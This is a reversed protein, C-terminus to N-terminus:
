FIDYVEQGFKRRHYEDMIRGYMYGYVYCPGVLEYGTGKRRAVFPVKSGFFFLLRDGPVTKAPVMGKIKQDEVFFFRWFGFYEIQWVNEKVSDDLRSNKISQTDPSRDQGLGMPALDSSKMGFMISRVPSQAVKDDPSAPLSLMFGLPCRQRLFDDWKQMVGPGEVVGLDEARFSRLLAIGPLRLITSCHPKNSDIFQALPEKDLTACFQADREVEPFIAPILQKRRNTLSFDPVWSPLDHESKHRDPEQSDSLIDLNNDIMISGKSALLFLKAPPMKLTYDPMIRYSESVMSLMGYIKDRADTAKLRRSFALM